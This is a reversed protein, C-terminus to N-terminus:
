RPRGPPTSRAAAAVEVRGSSRPARRLAVLHELRDPGGRWDPRPAAATAVVELDAAPALRTLQEDAPIRVGDIEGDGVVLVATGPEALAGSVAHLVDSVERDWRARGERGAITRRAGIEQTALRRAQVGLWPERLAHHLAYDYTGAYPPSTLVVTAKRRGVIDGLNRADDLVLHPADGKRAAGALAEWREVLEVGKSEWIDTPIYKGIRRGPVDRADTDARQKSVKVVMASLVVQLARRDHEDPVGRIEEWLGALERLVHAEFRKVQEPSLPARAQAKAKVRQRSREAIELVTARFVERSAKPRVDTKVEAVRLAVPNLDVGLSALGRVRAEVLTTGSGCFPDVVTDGSGTALADLVVAAISPHLRAPYSHFGHTLRDPDERAAAALAEFLVAALGADGSKKTPPRLSSLARKQRPERPERADRAGRADPADPRAREPGLPPRRM